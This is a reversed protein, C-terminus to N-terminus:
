LAEAAETLWDPPGDVSLKDTEVLGTVPNVTLQVYRTDAGSGAALWVLTSGSRTTEGLPGYEVEDTAELFGDYGAVAVIRVTPGLHPLENLSVVHKDAPDDVNRFPSDPLNDLASDSGSHELTYSNNGVSFTIRYNSNNAVALSRAFHLDTAVIRTTSRLQDNIAPNSSPMVLGILIGMVAIVILLEILTFGASIKSHRPM